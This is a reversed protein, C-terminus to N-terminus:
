SYIFLNNNNITISLSFHWVGLFIVIILFILWLGVDLVNGIVVTLQLHFVQCVGILWHSSCSIQCKRVIHAFSWNVTLFVRLLPQAPWFLWFEKLCTDLPCLSWRAVFTLHYLILPRLHIAHYCESLMSLMTSLMWVRVLGLGLGLVSM